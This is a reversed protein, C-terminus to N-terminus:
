NVAWGNKVATVLAGKCCFFCGSIGVQFVMCAIRANVTRFVFSAGKHFAHHAGVGEPQGGDGTPLSIYKIRM